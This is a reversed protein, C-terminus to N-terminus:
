SVDPSSALSFLQAFVVSGTTFMCRLFTCAIAEIYAACEFLFLRRGDRNFAPGAAGCLPWPSAGAAPRIPHM